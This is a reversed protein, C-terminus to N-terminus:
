SCKTAGVINGTIPAKEQAYRAEGSVSRSGDLLLDGAVEEQDADHHPQQGPHEVPREAGTPLRLRCLAVFIDTAAPVLVMPKSYPSRM